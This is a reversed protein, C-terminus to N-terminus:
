RRAFIPRSFSASTVGAIRTSYRSLHERSVKTRDVGPEFREAAVPFAFRNVREGAVTFRYRETSLWTNVM